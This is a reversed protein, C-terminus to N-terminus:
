GQVRRSAHTPRVAILTMDDQQEAGAVFTAVCDLVEDLVPEVRGTTRSRALAQRLREFGFLEGDPSRAEVVGDSVLLILDDPRLAVTVEVYQADSVMGLPLGGVDLLQAEGDRVLLPVIMGGNAVSLTQQDLDIVVYQLAAFMRVAQLQATLRRNLTALLPAPREIARAEAEIISTTLAMLLAASVGKGSIDGIAIAVRHHDLAVYAYFDGGVEYAPLSRSALTVPHGSWPMHDPLLGIQIDRALALDSRMRENQEVIAQQLRLREAEARKRETIDRLVVLLHQQKQYRFATGRFEIDLVTGDRRVGTTEAGFQGATAIGHKLEDVLRASGPEMIAGCPLGVMEGPLYGYMRGAAPNAAVIVGDLGVILVADLSAEFMSRYQAERDRLEDEMRKRRFFGPIEYQVDQRLSAPQQDLYAAVHGEIRAPPSMIFRCREAGLARCAVEVTVMPLGFSEETWGSSYGANMVCVPFDAHKGAQLWADAEFSSRHDFIIYADEGASMRSEPLLEVLAWGSHAFHIPGVSAKEMPTHLGMQRHFNRADEAGIAHSIDFLLSRAVSAAETEGQDGYLRQITEFFDVSMSAARLLIYREGSIEITGQQPDTRLAAFYRRVSDQAADFLAAHEDPVNVTRWM